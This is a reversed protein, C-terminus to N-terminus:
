GSVLELWLDAFVVDVKGRAEDAAHELFPNPRTVPHHVLSTFVMKGAVEFVLVGGNVPRIEHPATGEVVFKAYSAAVGVFGRNGSVEKYVTSALYGSKVPAGWFAASFAIDTLREILKERLPGSIKQTVEDFELGSTSVQFEIM